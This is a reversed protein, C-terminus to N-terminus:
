CNKKKSLKLDLIEICFYYRCLFYYLKIGLILVLYIIDININFYFVLFLNIMFDFFIDLM